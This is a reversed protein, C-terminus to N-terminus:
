QLVDTTAQTFQVCAQVLWTCRLTLSKVTSGVEPLCRTPLWLLLLVLLLSLQVVQLAMICSGNTFGQFHFRSPMGINSCLVSQACYLGHHRGSPWGLRSEGPLSGAASHFLKHSCYYLLSRRLPMQLRCSLSWTRSAPGPTCSGHERGLASRSWRCPKRRCFPTHIHPTHTCPTLM